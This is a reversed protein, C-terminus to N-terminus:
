DLSYTESTFDSILDPRYFQILYIIIILTIFLSFIYKKTKDPVIILGLILIVFGIFLNSGNIGGDVIWVISIAIFSIIILPIIFPKFIRRIRVFYYLTVLFFFSSLTIILVTIPSSIIISVISSILCILIGIIVTSLFLRNELTLIVDYALIYRLVEVIKKKIM